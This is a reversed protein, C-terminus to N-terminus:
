GRRRELEWRVVKLAMMVRRYPKLLEDIKEQRAERKLAM